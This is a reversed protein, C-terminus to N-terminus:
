EAGGRFTMEVAATTTRGEVIPVVREGAYLLAGDTTRAAATVTYFGEDLGGVVAPAEAGAPCDFAVAAAVFQDTTAFVDVTRVGSSECDRGDAFTWLVTLEGTGPTCGACLLLAVACARTLAAM